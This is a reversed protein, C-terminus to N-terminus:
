PKSMRVPSEVPIDQSFSRLTVRGWEISPREILRYMGYSLALIPIWAVLCLVLTAPAEFHTKHFIFAALDPVSYLLPMHILYASYSVTGAFRLHNCIFSFRTSSPTEACTLRYAIFSVTSLAALM